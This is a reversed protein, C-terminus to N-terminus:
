YHAVGCECVPNLKFLKSIFQVIMWLFGMFGSKHCLHDCDGDTDILTVGHNNVVTYSQLLLPKEATITGAYLNLTGGGEIGRIVATIEGGYMNFVVDKNLAIGVGLLNTDTFIKGGYMNLEANNYALIGTDGNDERRSVGGTGKCDCLSLKRNPNVSLAPDSVGKEDKMNGIIRYGNYCLNVDGRIDVAGSTDTVYIDEALYYNGAFLKFSSEALIENTLAAFTIQEGGTASCITSVSHIHADTESAFAFPVTTVVMLITLIISLTKKLTKNM